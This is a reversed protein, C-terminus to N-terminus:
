QVGEPRNEGSQLNNTSLCRPLLQSFRLIPRNTHHQQPQDESDDNGYLVIILLHSYWPRCRSSFSSLPPPLTSAAFLQSQNQIHEEGSVRINIQIVLSTLIYVLYFDMQPDLDPDCVDIKLSNRSVQYNTSRMAWPYYLGRKADVNELNLHLNTKM